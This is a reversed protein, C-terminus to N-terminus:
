GAAPALGGFGVMRGADEDWLKLRACRLSAMFTLRRAAQLPPCAEFCARLRYNPVRSSLHHIHHYGINGTFWHVVRPLDYFSSGAMAAAEASWAQERAWYASEFQHQVYFLWIGAAGAIIMLPLQLLLVTKWGFAWCLVVGAVLLALDNWIASSWEKRWSLPLDFPVRHKVLLQYLPGVGLLVPMSRYLRYRARGLWGRSQYERVTLTEIDGLQRRDLNGSTAHHIAHTKRWYAFPFMTIVGIGAGVRRNVTASSFYSGHGCDHQIIFLRVYFGALPLVLLLSWGGSWELTTAVLVWLLAFPPLTTMVQWYAKRDDARAFPTVLQRLTATTAASAEPTM